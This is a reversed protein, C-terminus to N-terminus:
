CEATLIGYKTNNSIAVFRKATVFVASLHVVAATGVFLCSYIYLWVRNCRGGIKLVWYYHLYIFKLFSSDPWLVLQLKVRMFYTIVMNSQIPYVYRLKEFWGPMRQLFSSTRSSLTAFTSNRRQLIHYSRNTWVSSHAALREKSIDPSDISTRKVSSM